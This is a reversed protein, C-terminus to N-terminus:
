KAMEIEGKMKIGSDEVVSRKKRVRRMHRATSKPVIVVTNHFRKKLVVSLTFPAIPFTLTYFAAFFLQLVFNSSSESELIIYKMMTMQYSVIEIM